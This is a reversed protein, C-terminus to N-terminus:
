RTDTPTSAHSALRGSAARIQEVADDIEFDPLVEILVHDNEACLRHKRADREQQRAFASEGGFREVPRQHQEGQYEVAIRWEPLFIDISQQGLWRPRGQHIVRTEPFADRLQHYLEVESVWGEVIRPLGASVRVTNEATRFVNNLYGRVVLDFGYTSYTALGAADPSPWRITPSTPAVLGRFSERDRGGYLEMFHLYWGMEEESVQGDIIEMVWSPAPEDPKRQIALTRWLESIISRGFWSHEEDLLHEVQLLVADKHKVGYPRLRASTTWDWAMRGTVRSDVLEDSIGIYTQLDIRGQAALLDFGTQYDGEIFHTDAAWSTTHNALSTEPYFSAARLFADRLRSLDKYGHEAVLEGMLVYGYSLSADIEVREGRLFAPKFTGEYFTAQLEDLDSRTSFYKKFHPVSSTPSEDVPQGLRVLCDRVYFIKHREMMKLAQSLSSYGRVKATESLDAVPIAQGDALEANLWRVMALLTWNSAAKELLGRKEPHMAVFSGAVRDLFHLVAEDGTIASALGVSPRLLLMVSGVNLADFDAQTKLGAHLVRMAEVYDHERIAIEVDRAVAV